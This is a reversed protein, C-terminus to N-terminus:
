LISRYPIYYSAYTGFVLFTVQVLAAYGIVLFTIQGAPERNMTFITPVRSLVVFQLPFLYLLFRDIATSSPFVLLLLVLGLTALSINRWLKALHEDFEFRRQFLLFILASMANMALRYAVGTSQIKESSYRRAYVSFIDQFYYFGLVAVVALLLARQLGNRTYSLLCLPLILLISGHFLAAIMILLVSRFLQRREFANLAFFLVGLAVSQRDGSMAVVIVLYPYAVLFALWPNPQKQSFATLGAVFIAGCILNLTWLPAHVQHLLWNLVMFGPDQHSIAQGFSYLKTYNFIDSYAAWDPGIEWRLGVMLATPISALAVLMLASRRSETQEEQNLLSGTALILFLAWYIFL